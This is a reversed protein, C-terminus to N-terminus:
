WNIRQDVDFDSPPQAALDWDPEIEVGDGIQADRGDWLSLGRALSIRPLEPDVGIHDLIQVSNAGHRIFTHSACRSVATRARCCRTAAPM